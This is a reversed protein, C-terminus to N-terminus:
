ATAEAELNRLRVLNYAVGVWKMWGGVKERGRFRVKRLLGTMKM